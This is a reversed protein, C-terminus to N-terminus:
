HNAHSGQRESREAHRMARMFPYTEHGSRACRILGLERGVFILSAHFGSVYMPHVRPACSREMITM